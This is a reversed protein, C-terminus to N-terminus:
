NAEAGRSRARRREYLRGDAMEMLRDPDDGPLSAAGLSVPPAGAESLRELLGDPDCHDTDALILAFEDGGIRYGRDESRATRAIAQGLRRLLDDGAPHGRSDNVEKLGDVDMLVLTMSHGHRAARHKERDLDEEFARRNGLGTLGDTLAMAVLRRIGAEAVVLMTRDIIMHLRRAGEVRQTEELSSIVARVFAERLCVLEALAVPVEGVNLGFADAVAELAPDLGWGVPQPRELATSVAGILSEAIPPRAGPPLAPDWQCLSLWERHIRGLARRAHGSPSTAAAGGLGLM